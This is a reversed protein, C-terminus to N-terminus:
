QVPDILRLTVSSFTGYVPCGLAYAWLAYPYPMILGGHTAAVNRLVNLSCFCRLKLDMVHATLILMLIKSHTLLFYRTSEAFSTYESQFSNVKNRCSLFSLWCFLGVWHYKPNTYQSCEVHRPPMCAILFTRLFAIHLRNM